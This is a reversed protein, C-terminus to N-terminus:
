KLNTINDHLLPVASLLVAPNAPLYTKVNHYFFIFVSFQSISKFIHFIGMMEWFTVWSQFLPRATFQKLYSQQVTSEQHWLNPVKSASNPIHPYPLLKCYIWPYWPIHLVVVVVVLWLESDGAINDQWHISKAKTPPKMCSDCTPLRRSLTRIRAHCASM